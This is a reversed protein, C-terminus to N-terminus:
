PSGIYWVIVKHRSRDVEFLFKLPDIWVMKMGPDTPLDHAPQCHADCRFRSLFENHANDIREEEAADQEIRGDKFDFFAARVESNGWKFRYFEGPM